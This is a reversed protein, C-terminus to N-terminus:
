IGNNRKRASMVMQYATFFRDIIISRDVKDQWTIQYFFTKRKYSVTDHNIQLVKIMKKIRERLSVDEIDRHPVFLHTQESYELLKFPDYEPTDPKLIEDVEKDGKKVNIDLSVVFLNDWDWYKEEKLKPDFHELSGFREIEKCKYRGNEWKDESLLVPNCVIMETYACVGKQCHLLNMLVDNYYKDSQSPHKVKDQNLHDLWKKYQASLIVTKDIKRM